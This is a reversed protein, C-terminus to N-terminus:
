QKIIKVTKNNQKENIIKLMYSGRSLNQLNIIHGDIINQKLLLLKGLEDYLEISINDTKSCKVTLIDDVPNPYVMADLEEKKLLDPITSVILNGQHFGQTLNTTGNILTEIVPEGITWSLSGQTSSGYGGSSAIVEFKNTQGFVYMSILTFFLLLVKKM